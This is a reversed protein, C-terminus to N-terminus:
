TLVVSLRCIYLRHISCYFLSLVGALVSFKLLFFSSGIVMLDHARACVCVCVCVCVVRVCVCVCVCTCVCVCM